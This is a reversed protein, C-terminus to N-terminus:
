NGNKQYPVKINELMPYHKHNLTVLMCHCADATAAIMADALGVGHSKGYDRRFIGGRMALDVTLQIITCAILTQELRVRENGERVGSFLEAVTIVSVLIPLPANQMFAVAPAYGRLFDIFVDTDVMMKEPASM